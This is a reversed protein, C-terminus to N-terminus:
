IEHQQRPELSRNTLGMADLHESIESMSPLSNAGESTISMAVSADSHFNPYLGSINHKSIYPAPLKSSHKSTNMLGAAAQLGDFSFNGDSGTSLVSQDPAADELISGIGGGHLSHQTWSMGDDLHDTNNIHIIASNNLSSGIGNSASLLQMTPTNDSTNVAPTSGWTQNFQDIQAQRIARSQGHIGESSSLSSMPDTLASIGSMGSVASTKDGGSLGSLLSSEGHHHFTRGFVEDQSSSHIPVEFEQIPRPQQQQKMASAAAGSVAALRQTVGTRFGLMPNPFYPANNTDVQNIHRPPQTAITNTNYHDPSGIDIHVSAPQQQQTHMGGRGQNSRFSNSSGTNYLKGGRGSVVTASKNTNVNLNSGASTTGAPIQVSVAPSTPNVHITRNTQTPTSEASGTAVNPTELGKSISTTVDPQHEEYGDVDDVDRVESADERLAQGVKKIAKQDGIDWWAGDNDEKLFRGPPDLRRIYYVIDAAIHAKELKKTSTALYDKKRQAVIDRFQVNGVHANIRGGRGALVDNVNPDRIPGIGKPPIAIHPRPQATSQKKKPAKMLGINQQGGGGGGPVNSPGVANSAMMPNNAIANNNGGGRNFYGTVLSAAAQRRQRKGANIQCLLTSSSHYDLHQDHWPMHQHYPDYSPTNTPISYHLANDYIDYLPTFSLINDNNDNMSFVNQPTVFSTKKPSRKKTTPSGNAM